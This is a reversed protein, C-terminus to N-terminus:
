RWRTHLKQLIEGAFHFSQCRADSFCVKIENAKDFFISQPSELEDTIAVRPPLSSPLLSGIELNM